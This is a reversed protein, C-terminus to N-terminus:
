NTKKAGNVQEKLINQELLLVCFKMQRLLISDIDKHDAFWNIVFSAFGYDICNKYPYFKWLIGFLNCRTDQDQWWWDSVCRRLCHGLPVYSHSLLPLSLIKCPYNLIVMQGLTKNIPILREKEKASSLFLPMINQLTHQISRSIRKSFKTLPVALSLYSLLM